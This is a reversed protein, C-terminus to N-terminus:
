GKKKKGEVEVKKNSGALYPYDSFIREVADPIISDKKKSNRTYRLDLSGQWVTKGTTADKMEVIVISETYNTQSVNYYNGYYWPNYYYPSRNVNTDRQRSSVIDYSVELDPSYTLDYGRKKMESNIADEFSAIFQKGEPTLDKNDALPRKLTYEEFKGFNTRPNEFSVVKVSCGFYIASLLLFLSIKQMMKITDDANIYM